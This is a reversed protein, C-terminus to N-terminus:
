DEEAITEYMTVGDKNALYEAIAIRAIGTIDGFPAKTENVFKQGEDLYKQSQETSALKM